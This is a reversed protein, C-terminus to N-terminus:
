RSPLDRSLVYGKETKIWRARLVHSLYSMCLRSTRHVTSLEVRRSGLEAPARLEIGSQHSVGELLKDVTMEQEQLGLVFMDLRPDKVDDIFQIDLLKQLKVRRERDLSQWRRWFYQSLADWIAARYASEPYRELLEALRAVNEPKGDLHHMVFALGDQKLADHIPKEETAPDVVRCEIVRSELARPLGDIKPGLVPYHVKICVPGSSEFALHKAETASLLIRIQFHLEAGPELPKAEGGRKIDPSGFPRYRSYIVGDRSVFVKVDQLTEEYRRQFAVVNPSLNKLVVNVLIPEAILFSPKDVSAKLELVPTNRPKNPNASVLSGSLLLAAIAGFFAM